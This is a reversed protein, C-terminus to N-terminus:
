QKEDVGRQVLSARFEMLGMGGSLGVGGDHDVRNLLELLVGRADDWQWGGDWAVGGDVLGGAINPM